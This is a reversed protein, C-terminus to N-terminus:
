RPPSLQRRLCAAAGYPYKNSLDFDSSIALEELAIPQVRMGCPPWREAFLWFVIDWRQADSLGVDFAPMATEVGGYTVRLYMEWPSWNRQFRLLNPAPPEMGLPSRDHCAACSQAYLRAGEALDPKAPPSRRLKTEAVIQAMLAKCDNSLQYDATMVRARLASLRQRVGQPASIQALLSTADDLLRALQALRRQSADRDPLEIAERYEDSVQQLAAVVREFRADPQRRPCALALALLLHARWRM